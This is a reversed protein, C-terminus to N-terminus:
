VIPKAKKVVDMLALLSADKKDAPIKNSLLETTLKKGLEVGPQDFANLNQLFSEFMTKNEYHALLAGLTKPTLQDYCIMSTPRNGTFFEYANKGTKGKGLAVMQAVMNAILKEQSSSGFTSLDKKIQPNKGIILQMPIVDSGQHLKQFYSHQSDTGPKGFIMTGTQYKIPNGYFNVSKGNSECYLQQLHDAFSNLASSYPSIDKMPFGLFNREWVSIGADLIAMNKRIDKSKAAEDMQAAGQLFKEFVEPGYALSLVTGGVASTVSYRGGIHDDIYFSSLFQKPNDMPSGKGTVAVFHKSLDKEALGLQKAKEKVFAMNTLTEQTTGSKSVVVFLTKKIDIQNLVHNADDPDVNSIFHTKLPKNPTEKNSEYRELASYVAQPGLFSGGIGIQVITTFPAGSASRIEGSRIKNAFEAIKKQEEGYMGRDIPNRTKHHLVMRGESPNMIKGSQIDEYREWVHANGALKQLADIVKDNVLSTAYSYTLGANETQYKEIRDKNLLNLLSIPKRSLKKLLKYSSTKDLDPYRLSVVKKMSKEKIIM